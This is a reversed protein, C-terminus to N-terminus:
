SYATSTGFCMVHYVRTATRKNQIILNGSEVYVNHKTATDKTVTWFGEPDSIEYTAGGDCGYIAVSSDSPCLLFLIGTFAAGITLTANDAVSNSGSTRLRAISDATSGLMLSTTSLQMGLGGAVAWGITNDTVNYMGTNSDANFTYSPAGVAGYPVSLTYGTPIYLGTANIGAAQAGGVSFGLDDAGARYMGSNDDIYFSFAPLSADANYARVVGSLEVDCNFYAHSEAANLILSLGSSSNKASIYLYGPYTDNGSAEITAWANRTGSQLSRIRVENTLVNQMGYVAGIVAGSATFAYSNLNDYDNNAEVRIGDASLVGEGAGFYLKGDTSGYWQLTGTNYGGIRGVGTDNWLKLGTTPSAFTGSGQYIGGSTGLTMAGAFYSTGDSDLAIVNTGSANNIKLNGTSNLQLRVTSGNMIRLGNSADAAIWTTAPNGAAFGYATASYDYLGNLNGIAWRTAWDNFTDSMRRNGVITPGYETAAKVGRVSYLDIFGDGTTGTNFIADGAYWVNRGTGDLNRTVSYTYAGASGGAASTIAMFEVKGNAEMYVRDGSAMENHKVTITTDGVGDALDATLVTTPGVLIRGGITAITDQAVLTEVWLEAAHLTLFKKNLTGLNIDYNTQPQVNNGTPDLIVTAPDLILSVSPSINITSGTLLPTTLSTTATLGVLTLLGGSTSALIRDNAGPNSSSTIAHTHSGAAANTTAVDLTGPTTLAIADAAVTLGNGAGVALVGSTYTLGAGASSSALAVSDAGVTIGDGAGVALTIATALTGTGTLGAGATVATAKLAYLPHDDDGLGTLLGHDTVGGGSGPTTGVYVLGSGSAAAQRRTDLVRQLTKKPM